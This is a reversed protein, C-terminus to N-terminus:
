TVQRAKVTSSESTNTIDYDFMADNNDPTKRTREAEHEERYFGVKELAIADDGSIKKLNLPDETRDYWSKIVAYYEKWVLIFVSDIFHCFYLMSRHDIRQLMYAEFVKALMAPKDLSDLRDLYLVIAQSAKKLEDANLSNFFSRREEATYQGFPQLFRLVKGVFLRDRINIGTKALARISNIIPLDRAVGDSLFSDIFIEGVDKAVNQLDSDALTRLLSKDLSLSSEEM